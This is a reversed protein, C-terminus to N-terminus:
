TIVFSNETTVVQEATRYCKYTTGNYSYSGNVLTYPVDFGGSKISSIARTSVFWIYKASGTFNVAKTGAVSASNIDTLSAILADSVTDDEAAGIYSTYYASITVSRSISKGKKDVGSLTYTVGSPTLIVTDSIEIDVSTASPAIDSMLVTSGRKLTLNGDINAINTERHTIKTLTFTAPLKYTNASPTRSFIDITPTVYNIIALIEDIKADLQSVNVVDKPNVGDEVQARGNSDRQMLSDPTKNFDVPFLKDKGSTSVGYARDFTSESTVKEVYKDADALHKFKLSM